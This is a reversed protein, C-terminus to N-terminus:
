EIKIKKVGAGSKVVYIGNPLNQLIGVTGEGVKVGTITYVVVDDDFLPTDLVTATSLFVKVYKSFDSEHTGNVAKVRYAYGCQEMDTFEYFNEATRYEGVFEKSYPWTVAVSIDDILVRKNENEADTSFRLTFEGAVAVNLEFLGESSVVNTKVVEGSANLVDVVLKINGAKSNYKAVKASITVNGDTEIKPTVLAGSNNLAGICLMGTESYINNGSWGPISMYTDIDELIATSAKNCNLFDEELLKEVYAEGGSANKLKYLEVLYESAYDVTNWNAVFSNNTFETAPLAVPTNMESCVFNFSAVYNEYKINTVSKNLYGGTYVTAAPTSRNSFENKNNKGPWLDGALSEYFKQAGVSYELLENDAPVIQFRPHGKTSNIKNENWATKDYDVHIIMMGDAALSQDWGERKRNELIFYENNNADNLIKYGVGGQSQPVMSYAGNETLVELSKWGCVDKQYSNYGVPIYGYTTNENGVGMIDWDDMGWVGAEYSVDYVDHLGLCHSFEHCITGIGALWKGKDEYKETINLESSCAYADCFVGDVKVKSGNNSSLKWQHPWITNASAGNAESYGAYICYLFEVNGDKDNDFKSFNISADAKRIGESIMGQPNKDSGSTNNAGYYSMNHDLTIIETVVFKPTFLGGSQAIFYDRASGYSEVGLIDCKYKYNPENLLNEIDEKKFSFKMDKFEVLLVPVTVEGKTIYRSSASRTAVSTRYKASRAMHTESVSNGLAKYDIGALLENEANDRESENHALVGTSLFVGDSFTAYYFDGCEGKVVYKGDLTVYFHMAEDGQMVITLMTGDSQRVVLPKRNAPVAFVSMAWVLVLIFSLFKKMPISDKVFYECSM